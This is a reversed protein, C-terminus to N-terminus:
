HKQGLYEAKISSRKAYQCTTSGIGAVVNDADSLKIIPSLCLCKYNKHMISMKSRHCASCSHSSGEGLPSPKTNRSLGTKDACPRNFDFDCVLESIM